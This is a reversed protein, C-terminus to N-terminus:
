PLSVRINHPSLLFSGGYGKYQPLWISSTFQMPQTPTQTALRGPDVFMLQRKDEDAMDCASHLTGTSFNGVEKLAAVAEEAGPCGLEKKLYQVALFTTLDSPLSDLGVSPTIAVGAAKAKDHFKQILTENFGTEGSLDVYHANEAICATVVHEAGLKRFPGVVNIVSKAQRAMAKLTDPRNNEAEILGVDDGLQLDSRLKDLREKSRGAIAWRPKGAHDRLYKAVLKGTFGTAGFLVTDYKKESAMTTSALTSRSTCCILPQTELM